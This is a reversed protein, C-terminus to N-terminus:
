TQFVKCGGHNADEHKDRSIPSLKINDKSTQKPTRTMLHGVLRRTRQATSAERSERVLCRSVTRHCKGGEARGGGYPIGCPESDVFLLFNCSGLDILLIMYFVIRFCFVLAFEYPVHGVKHNKRQM